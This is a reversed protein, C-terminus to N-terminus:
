ADKVAANASILTNWLYFMKKLCTQLDERTRSKGLKLYMDFLSSLVAHNSGFRSKVVRCQVQKAKDCLGTQSIVNIVFPCTFFFVCVGRIMANWIAVDSNEFSGM